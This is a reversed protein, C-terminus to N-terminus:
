YMLDILRIVVSILGEFPRRGVADLRVMPFEAVHRLDFPDGWFIDILDHLIDSPKLALRANLLDNLEERDEQKVNWIEREYPLLYATRGQMPPPLTMEIPGDTLPRNM